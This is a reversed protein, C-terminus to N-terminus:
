LPLGRQLTPFLVPRDDSGCLHHDSDCRDAAPLRLRLLVSQALAVLLHLTAGRLDSRFAAGWGYADSVTHFPVVAPPAGPPTDQQDARSLLTCGERLRPVRGRVGGM